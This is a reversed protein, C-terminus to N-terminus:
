SQALRPSRQTSPPCTTFTRFNLDIPGITCTHQIKRSGPRNPQALPIRRQPDRSNLPDAPIEIDAAAVEHKIQSAVSITREQEIKAERRALAAAASTPRCDKGNRTYVKSIGCYAHGSCFYHCFGKADVAMGGDAPSGSKCKCGQIQVTRPQQHTPALQTKTSDYTSAGKIPSISQFSPPPPTRPPLPRHGRLSVDRAALTPPFGDGRRGGVSIINTSVMLGGLLAMIVLSCLTARSSPPHDGGGRDDVDSGGSQARRKKGKKGKKRKRKKGKEEAM